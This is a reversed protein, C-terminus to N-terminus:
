AAEPPDPEDLFAGFDDADDEGDDDLLWPATLDYLVASQFMALMKTRADSLFTAAEITPGHARLYVQASCWTGFAENIDRIHPHRASAARRATELSYAALTEDSMNAFAVETSSLMDEGWLRGKHNDNSM